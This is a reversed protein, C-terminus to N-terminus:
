HSKEGFHWIKKFRALNRAILGAGLKYVFSFALDVLRAYVGMFFGGQIL